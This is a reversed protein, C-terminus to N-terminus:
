HNDFLSKHHQGYRPRAAVTGCVVQSGAKHKRGLDGNGSTTRYNGFDGLEISFVM